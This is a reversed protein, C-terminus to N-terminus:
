QEIILINKDFIFDGLEFSSKFEPSNANIANTSKPFVLIV